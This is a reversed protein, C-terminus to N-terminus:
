TNSELLPHHTLCEGSLINKITNESKGFLKVIEILHTNKFVCRIKQESM